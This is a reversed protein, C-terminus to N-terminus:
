PHHSLTSQEQDVHLSPYNLALMGCHYCGEYLNVTKDKVKLRNVFATTADPNTIHDATGHSIFLRCGEREEIMVKGTDLEEARTLM